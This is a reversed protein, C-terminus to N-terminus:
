SPQWMADDVQVDTGIPRKSEHITASGLCPPTILFPGKAKSSAILPNHKRRAEAEM